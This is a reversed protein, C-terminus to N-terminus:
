GGGGLGGGGGDVGHGVECLVRGEGGFACFLVGFLLGLLLGFVFGLVVGPFGFDFGTNGTIDQRNTGMQTHVGDGFLGRSVQVFLGVTVGDFGNCHM